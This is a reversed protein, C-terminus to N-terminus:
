KDIGLSMRFKHSVLIKFKTNYESIRCTGLLFVLVIVFHLMRSIASLKLKSAVKLFSVSEM